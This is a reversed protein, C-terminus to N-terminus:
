RGEKEASFPALMWSSTKPHLVLSWVWFCAVNGKKSNTKRIIFLSPYLPLSPVERGALWAKARGCKYSLFTPGFCPKRPQWRLFAIKREGEFVNSTSHGSDVDWALHGKYVQYCFVGEKNCIKNLFYCKQKHSKCERWVPIKGEFYTFMQALSHM